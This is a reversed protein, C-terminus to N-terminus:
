RLSSGCEKAGLRAWLAQELADVVFEDHMSRAARWGIIRRAFVEIVFAVYAFGSWTAVYSFDAVSTPEAPEGPVTPQDSGAATQLQGPKTSVEDKPHLSHVIGL